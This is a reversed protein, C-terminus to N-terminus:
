RLVRTSEIAAEVAKDRRQLVGVGAVLSFAKFGYTKGSEVGDM